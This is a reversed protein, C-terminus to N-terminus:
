PSPYPIRLPADTAEPNRAMTRAVSLFRRLAPNDNSPSWVASFPLVNEGDEIPRFVVGPYTAAITAESTLSLGFGVGVLHMLNERGVAFKLVTPHEGLNALHKIVYDHIEPGPEDRSVIFQETRLADWHIAAAQALSHDEPLVVFVRESWLEGVDCGPVDPVGTVFAVDLRRDRIRQIHERPAGEIVDIEVSPHQSAYGIILERLFMSAMSSFIGVRLCGEGGRGANGASRVAYDLEVLASRALDLFRQGAITTRVGGSHREFLSVGLEDELARIRHSVASQATGLVAAAARFSLQESVLIAQAVSTLNVM